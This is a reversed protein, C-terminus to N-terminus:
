PIIALKGWHVEGTSYEVKVHYMGVAVEEGNGNRGDWRVRRSGVDPYTGKPFFVDDVLRKVLNMAFDYIEITVNADELLTFHFDMKHTMYRSFSYPVPFAYVVDPPTTTDMVYFVEADRFENVNMRVTRDETGVWLNSDILEVAYVPTGPEVLTIGDFDVLDVTDWAAGIDTYNLLLGANTAAFVSDGVFEFNWAFDDDYALAWSMAYSITDQVGLTDTEVVPLMEGVAIGEQQGSEVIRGSVWIYPSKGQNYQVGIAPVFDGPIGGWTNEETYNIAVDAKLTDRNIRTIVYSEGRDNSLAFGNGSGVLITDGLVHFVTVTDDDMNDTSGSTRDDIEYMYTMNNLGNEGDKSFRVGASTAVFVSDSMFDIDYTVVGIQYSEILFERDNTGYTRRVCYEGNVTLPYNITWVALSDFVETDPNFFEEVKVKVIKTSSTVSEEFVYFWSSDIQGTPDMYLTVLGSDTGVRLTDGLPCVAHVVNRRNAATIDTSDVFIHEWTQGTDISVFLGAEEAAMYMRGNMMAFESIRRNDGIVETFSERAEYSDGFDDSVALGQSAGNASDATGAFIKGDIVYITTIFPGPLGDTPGNPDGTAFRSLYPGGTKFGRTVGLDGAYFLYNDEDDIAIDNIAIESIYKAAYPKERPIAYVYQYVGGATGAWVFLSDGHSSDAACAFYRNSYAPSSPYAYFDNELAQDPFIRRWHNGGDRSAMFGVAYATFFVWNDTQYMSAPNCYGTIDYVTRYAGWVGVTTDDDDDIFGLDEFDIQVWTNGNDDSYSVGDSFSFYEGEYLIDHNTAIWLREGLPYIASVNESVLGNGANYMLWTQGTDYSFNIGSGTAFWVGGNHEIIDIVTNSIFSTDPEELVTLFTTPGALLVAPLCLIFFILTLLAKFCKKNRVILELYL